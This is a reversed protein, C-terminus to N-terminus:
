SHHHRRRSSSSSHRHKREKKVGKSDNPLEVKPRNLYMRSLTDEEEPQQQNEADVLSESTDDDESGTSQCCGMRDALKFMWDCFHILAFFYLLMLEVLGVLHATFTMKGFIAPYPSGADVAYTWEKMDSGDQLINCYEILDGLFTLGRYQLLNSELVIAWTCVITAFILLPDISMHWLWHRLENDKHKSINLLFVNFLYAYFIAYPSDQETWYPLDFGVSVLSMMVRIFWCIFGVFILMHAVFQVRIWCTIMVSENPDDKKKKPDHDDKFFFATLRECRVPKCMRKENRFHCTIVASVLGMLIEIVMVTVIIWFHSRYWYSDYSASYSRRERTLGNKLTIGSTDTYLKTPTREYEYALMVAFISFTLLTVITCFVATWGRHDKMDVKIFQFMASTMPLIMTDSWMIPKNTLTFFSGLTYGVLFLIYLLIIYWLIYEMWKYLNDNAM